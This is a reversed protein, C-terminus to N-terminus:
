VCTGCHNKSGKQESRRNHTKYIDREAASTIEAIAGSRDGNKTIEMLVSVMPLLSRKKIKKGFTNAIAKCMPRRCFLDFGKQLKYCNFKKHDKVLVYHYPNGCIRCVGLGSKFATYALDSMDTEYDVQRKAEKLNFLKTRQSQPHAIVPRGFADEVDKHEISRLCVANGPFRCYKNALRQYIENAKANSIAGFRSAYREAVLLIIVNKDQAEQGKYSFFFRHGYGCPTPIQLRDALNMNSM